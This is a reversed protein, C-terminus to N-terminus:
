GKIFLANLMMLLLCVVSAVAMRVSLYENPQLLAGVLRINFCIFLTMCLIFKDM